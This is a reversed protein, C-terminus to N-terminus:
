VESGEMGAKRKKRQQALLQRDLDDDTVVFLARGDLRARVVPLIYDRYRQQQQHLQGASQSSTSPIAERVYVDYLTFQYHQRARSIKRLRGMITIDSSIVVDPDEDASLRVSSLDAQQGSSTPASLRDATFSPRAASRVLPDSAQPPLLDFRPRHRLMNSAYHEAEQLQEFPVREGTALQALVVTEDCASQEHQERLLEPICLSPNSLSVDTHKSANNSTLAAMLEDDEDDDEGLLGFFDLDDEDNGASLPDFSDGGGCSHRLMDDFCDDKDNKTEDDGLDEGMLLLELADLTSNGSSPIHRHNM